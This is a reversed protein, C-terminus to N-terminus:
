DTFEACTFYDTVKAVLEDVTYAEFCIKPDWEAGSEDRFKARFREVGPAIILKHATFTLKATKRNM